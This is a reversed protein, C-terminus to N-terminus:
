LVIYRIDKFNEELGLVNSVKLVMGNKVKEIPRQGGHLRSYEVM